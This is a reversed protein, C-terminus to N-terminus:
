QLSRCYTSFDSSPIGEEGLQRLFTILQGRHMTAHNFIHLLMDKVQMTMQEKNRLFTFAATLDNDTANDVWQKWQQSQQLHGETLAKFSGNFAESLIIINEVKQLRQWWIHEAQWLHVATKYISPFSSVIGTTIQEETLKSIRVYLIQHAWINYAAYQQLLEKM